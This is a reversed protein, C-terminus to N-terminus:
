LYLSFIFPYYLIILWSISRWYCLLGFYLYNEQCVGLFNCFSPVDKSRSNLFFWLSFNYLLASHRSFCSPISFLYAWQHFNFLNNFYSKTKIILIICVNASLHLHIFHHTIRKMTINYNIYISILSKYSIQYSGM